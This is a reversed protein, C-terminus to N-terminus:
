LIQIKFKEYPCNSNKCLYKQWENYRGNKCVKSSKCHPCQMTVTKTEEIRMVIYDRYQNFKRQTVGMHRRVNTITISRDNEKLQQIIETVRRKIWTAEKELVSDMFEKLQPMLNLQNKVQQMEKSGTIGALSCLYGITVRRKTNGNEMLATYTNQFLELLTEDKEGWYSKKKEPTIINQLWDNDYTYLWSFARSHMLRLDNSSLEGKEELLQLVEKKYIDGYGRNPVYRANTNTDLGLKEAISLLGKVSIQMETAIDMQILKKVYICDRLKKGM